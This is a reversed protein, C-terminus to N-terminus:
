RTVRRSGPHRRTLSLLAVLRNNVKDGGASTLQEPAITDCSVTEPLGRPLRSFAHLNWCSPAQVLAALMLLHLNGVAVHDGMIWHALCQEPAMDSSADAKGNPFEGSGLTQNVHPLSNRRRM